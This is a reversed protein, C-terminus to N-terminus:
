KSENIKYALMFRIDSYSVDNSLRNKIPTMGLNYDFNELAKLILKQKEKDVLKDIKLEGNAIYTVLHSQITNISLKRQQAIEEVNFGHEFLRFTQEKTNVKEFNNNPSYFEDNTKQSKEKKPKKEKKLKLLHMKSELNNEIM